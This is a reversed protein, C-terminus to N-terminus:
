VRKYTTGTSLATGIFVILLAAFIWIFPGKLFKKSKM